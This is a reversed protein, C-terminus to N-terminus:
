RRVKTRSDREEPPNGSSLNAFEVRDSEEGEEKRVAMIEDLPSRITAINRKSVHTYIETTKSSKHGLMEQIYRLDIGAELLHTAFSHRLTHVSVDKRIGAKRCAQKLIKEVTREHLHRGERQGPFLWKRPRYARWYDRLTELAVESLMVYRDKRGKGQRVHLLRRESDVDEVQLRVVEGVRLGASYVMMLLARHKLNSIAEFIRLVEARSLVDPLKREKKPRPLNVISSSQKLVKGYLFKLASICQNAYTHSKREDLLHLVYRRIEAEGLDQPEKGYFNIFRAIHGLYAKRTRAGYGRLKLEQDMRELIQPQKSAERRYLPEAKLPRLSPDVEVWEGKFLSLLREVIGESRPVSWCKEEPHWRRGPISKIKAVREPDYPIVVIVRGPEGPKVQIPEVTETMSKARQGLDEAM